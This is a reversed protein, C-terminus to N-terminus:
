YRVTGATLPVVEGVQTDQEAEHGATGVKCYWKKKRCAFVFAPVAPSSAIDQECRYREGELVVPEIKLVRLQRGVFFHHHHLGLELGYAEVGHTFKFILLIHTGLSRHCDM